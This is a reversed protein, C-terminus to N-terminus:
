APAARRESRRARVRDILLRLETTVDTPLELMVLHGAGPLVVLRATPVAHQMEFSHEPPTMLDRSGVLITTPVKELMPLAALEDHAVLTSYFQSMTELHTSLTMREAFALLSRSVPHEGFGFRYTVLLALEEGAKRGVSGGARAVLGTGTRLGTEFLDPRREVQRGAIPVVLKTIRPFFAPFGLTVEALKGASTSILGVGVIRDGVLEPHQRVLSLVTMGGMSHGVLVVPGHPARQDMVAELDRGLQEITSRSPHGSGSRGHGRADYMVLRVGDPNEAFSKHQYHWVGAVNTYGHAAIVTLPADAPGVEVCYLKVGDGTTVISERGTLRGFPEGAEPDEKLLRRAQVLRHGAVGGVTLAGVGITGLAVQTSRKGLVSQVAAVREPTALQQLREFPNM